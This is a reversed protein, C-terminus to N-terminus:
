TEKQLISKTRELYCTVELFTPDIKNRHFQFPTVYAGMERFAKTVKQLEPICYRIVSITFTYLTYRFEDHHSLIWDDMDDHSVVGYQDGELSTFIDYIANEIIIGIYKNLRQDSSVMDMDTQNVHMELYSLINTITMDYAKQGMLDPSQLLPIAFRFTYPTTLEDNVIRYVENAYGM